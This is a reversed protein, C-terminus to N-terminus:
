KSGSPDTYKQNVKSDVCSANEDGERRKQILAVMSDLSSLNVRVLDEPELEIEFSEQMFVAIQVVSFSDLIKTELLDTGPQIDGEFGTESRIYETLIDLESKM